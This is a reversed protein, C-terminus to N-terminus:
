RKVMEARELGSSFPFRPPSETLRCTCVLLLRLEIRLVLPMAGFYREKRSKDGVCSIFFDLAVLKRGPQTFYLLM